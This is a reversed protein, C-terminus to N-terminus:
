ARKPPLKKYLGRVIRELLLPDPREARVLPPISDIVGQDRLQALLIRGVHLQVGVSGVVEYLLTRRGRELLFDRIAAAEPVLITVREGYETLSVWSDRAFEEDPPLAADATVVFSPVLSHRLVPEDDDDTSDFGHPNGM